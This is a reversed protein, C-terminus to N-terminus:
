GIVPLLTDFKAVSLLRKVDGAPRHLELALSRQNCVDKALLFMGLGGSDVFSLDYLDLVCRSISPSVQGMEAILRRFADHHQATLQGSLSYVCANGQQTASYHM